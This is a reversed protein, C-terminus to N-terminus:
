ALLDLSLSLSLISSHSVKYLPLSLTQYVWFFQPLQFDKLQYEGPNLM